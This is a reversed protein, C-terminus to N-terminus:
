LTGLFILLDELERKTLETKIQHRQRTFVDALTAARGDHFYPGGQSVGRLSPPNFTDHGAEDKLGVDYVGASTYLPPMHCRTCSQKAFIDRGRRVDEDDARRNLKPPPPPLTRLYAALDQMQEAGPKPGQMTSTISKTVQHELETISGNWAWPGTDGVGRLSLIRKRTGYTGDGLTDALKGNTHGDTHCSHCSLWGDHSLKADYFLVEGRDAASLEAALGLSINSIAEPKALDVVSISDASTNAIFLRKNDASSLM